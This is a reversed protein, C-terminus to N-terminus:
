TRSIQFIFLLISKSISLIILTWTQLTRHLLLFSSIYKSCIYICMLCNAFLFPNCLILKKEKKRYRHIISRECEYETRLINVLAIILHPLSSQHLAFTCMLNFSLSLSFIFASSNNDISPVFLIFYFLLLRRFQVLSIFHPVKRHIWFFLAKSSLLKGILYFSPSLLSSFFINITYVNLDCIFLM